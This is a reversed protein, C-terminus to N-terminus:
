DRILLAAYAGDHTKCPLLERETVLRLPTGGETLWRVQEGNEEPEISCTSYVIRGGPRLLGASEALIRRQLDVLERLQRTSFRWRVDPRRRIVGTNSCPVDLLVADFSGREFPARAADAVILCADDGALNERVRRMRRCSRDACALMGARGLAEALMVSKGGPAACLDAVREGPQVDLMRPAMATSPDQVYFDGRAFEASRFLAHADTSIYFSADGAWDPLRLCALSDPDSPVPAGARLRVTLPANQQLVGALDALEDPPFRKEWRRVLEPGLGLRVHLPAAALLPEVSGARIVATINRLVANVYAGQHRGFRRRAYRVCVDVAAADPLGQMYLAQCTGWRLVPRLRKRVKGASASDILVDLSALTRLITLVTNHVIRDGGIDPLLDALSAGQEWRELLGVTARLAKDPVSM